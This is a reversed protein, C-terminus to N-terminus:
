GRQEVFARYDARAAWLRRDFLKLVTAVDLWSPPDHVGATAGYSSYPWDEPRAALDAELPNRAV